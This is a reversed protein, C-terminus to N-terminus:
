FHTKVRRFWNNIALEELLALSEPILEASSPKFKLDTAIFFVELSHMSDLIRRYRTIEEATMDEPSGAEEGNKTITKQQFGLLVPNEPHHVSAVETVGSMGYVITENDKIEVILETGRIGCVVEPTVISHSENGTIKRFKSILRGKQLSVDVKSLTLDNLSVITDEAIRILTGESFSIDINGYPGTRIYSNVNLRLGPEVETWEKDTSNRMEAEPEAWTVKPNHLIRVPTRFSMKDESIAVMSFYVAASIIVLLTIFIIFFRKRNRIKFM